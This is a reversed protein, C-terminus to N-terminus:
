PGVAVGSSTGIENTATVTLSQVHQILDETSGGRSFTLPITLSFLGGFPESQPTQFWALTSSEVNFRLVTATFEADGRPTIQIEVSRLTRTTSFGNVQLTLSSAGRAGIDVTLLRPAERNVAMSLPAASQPSVDLGATTTFTPVVQITGAVTGTQLRIETSGNEFTAQTAGAPITFNITRGGTSFQVAPNATFVDSSFTLNLSGRLPLSYPSALTLGVGPQQLPGQVGGPGTVKYDPIPVPQRGTGSLNFESNNVRLLATIAGV